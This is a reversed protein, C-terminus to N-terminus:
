YATKANKYVIQSLLDISLICLLTFLGFLKQLYKSIM